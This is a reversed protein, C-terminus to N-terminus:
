LPFACSKNLALQWQVTITFSHFLGGRLENLSVSHCGRAAAPYWHAVKRVRLARCRSEGQSPIAGGGETGDRARTARVYRRLPVADGPCPRVAWVGGGLGAM